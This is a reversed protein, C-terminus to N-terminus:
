NATLAEPALEVVQGLPGAASRHESFNECMTNEAAIQFTGILM